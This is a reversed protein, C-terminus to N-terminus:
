TSVGDPSKPPLRMVASARHRNEREVESEWTRTGLVFAHDSSPPSITLPTVESIEDIEMRAEFDAKGPYADPIPVTRRNDTHSLRKAPLPCYFQSLANFVETASPRKAPDRSWCKELFGWVSDDIGRFPRQPIGGAHIKSLTLMGGHKSYPLNGTLVQLSVYSKIRLDSSVPYRSSAEYVIVGMGYVDSERTVRSKYMGYDEPRRIEPASYQHEHIYEGITM